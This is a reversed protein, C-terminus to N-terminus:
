TVTKQDASVVPEAAALDPVPHLADDPRFSYLPRNTALTVMEGFTYYTHGPDLYDVDSSALMTLTGGKKAPAQATAANSKTGTSSATSSSSKDSGGCAAVVFALVVLMGAVLFRLHSRTM